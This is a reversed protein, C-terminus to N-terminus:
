FLCFCFVIVWRTSGLADGEEVGNDDRNGNLGKEEILFHDPANNGDTEVTDDRCGTLDM